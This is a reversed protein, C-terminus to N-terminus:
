YSLQTNTSRLRDAAVSLNLGVLNRVGVWVGELAEYKFVTKNPKFM